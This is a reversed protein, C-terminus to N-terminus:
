FVDTDDDVVITASVGDAEEIVQVKAEIAADTVTLFPKVKREFMNFYHPTQLEMAKTLMDGSGTNKNRVRSVISSVTDEVDKNFLLGARMILRDLNIFELTTLNGLRSSLAMVEQYLEMRPEFLSLKYDRLAQAAQDKDRKDVSALQAAIVKQNEEFQKRAAEQEAKTIRLEQRQTAVAIVLWIVAIPAFVGAIFDGLENLEKNQFQNAIKFWGVVYILIAVYATTFVVAGWMGLLWSTWPAVRSIQKTWWAWISNWRTDPKNGSSETSTVGIVM